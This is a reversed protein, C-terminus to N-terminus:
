LNYKNTQSIIELYDETIEKMEKKDKEVNPLQLVQIDRNETPIVYSIIDSHYVRQKIVKKCKNIDFTPFIIYVYEYNIDNDEIDEDHFIITELYIEYEIHKNKLFKIVNLIDSLDKIDLMVGIYEELKEFIKFNTIM